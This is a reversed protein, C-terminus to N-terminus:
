QWCHLLLTDEFFAFLAFTAFNKFFINSLNKNNEVSKQKIFAHLLLTAIVDSDFIVDVFRKRFILYYM